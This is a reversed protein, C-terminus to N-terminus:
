RMARDTGTGVSNMWGNVWSKKKKGTKDRYQCEM